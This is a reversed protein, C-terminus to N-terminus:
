IIFTCYHLVNQPRHFEEEDPKEVYNKLKLLITQSRVVGSSSSSFVRFYNKLNCGANLAQIHVNIYV